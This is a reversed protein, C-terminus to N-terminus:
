LGFREDGEVLLDDLKKREENSINRHPNIVVAGVEGNLIADAQATQQKTFQDFPERVGQAKVIEQAQKWLLDKDLPPVPPLNSEGENFAFDQASERSMSIFIIARAVVHRWVHHPQSFIM